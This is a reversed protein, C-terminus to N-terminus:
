YKTLPLHSVNYEDMLRGAFQYVDKTTAGPNADIWSEWRRTWDNKAIHIRSRHYTAPIEITYDHINIGHM